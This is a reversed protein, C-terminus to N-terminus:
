QHHSTSDVNKLESLIESVGIMSSFRPDSLTFENLSIKFVTEIELILELTQFSDLWGATFFNQSFADTPLEVRKSFWEHLWKLYAEKQM